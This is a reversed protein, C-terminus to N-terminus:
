YRFQEQHKEYLYSAICPRQCSPHQNTSYRHSVSKQLHDLDLGDPDLRQYWKVDISEAALRRQEQHALRCVLHIPRSRLWMEVTLVIDSM